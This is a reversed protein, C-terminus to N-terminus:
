DNLFSEGWLVEVKGNATLKVKFEAVPSTIVKTPDIIETDNEKSASVSLKPLPTRQAFDTAAKNTPEYSAVKGEKNVLVRYVLDDKIPTSVQGDQTSSSQWNKALIQQFQDQLKEIVKKDTIAPVPVAIASSLSSPIESPIEAERKLPAPAKLDNKAVDLTADLLQKVQVSDRQTFLRHPYVLRQYERSTKGEIVDIAHKTTRYGADTPSEDIISQLPQTPDLLMNALQRTLPVTGFVQVKKELGLEKVAQIALTTTVESGGWLVNINQHSELMQKVKDVEQPTQANTSAVQNWTVNSDSIGALFGQYYPYVRSSDAGDVFGVNLPQGPLNTKAWASMYKGVDSGMQFSDSEYCAFVVKQAVEPLCDGVTVVVAGSAYAEVIAPVSKEADLPRLLIVDVDLARLQKIGQAEEEIKDGTAIPFFEIRKNEKVANEIGQQYLKYSSAENPILYGVKYKDESPKAIKEEWDEDKIAKEWDYARKVQDVSSFKARKLNARDLEAAITITGKRLDAYRLSAGKLNAKYLNAKQFNARSLNSDQLNALSLDAGQLDAWLLWAGILSAEKLNTDRLYCRAMRTEDLNAKELDAGELNAYRLIAGKLNANKLNAGKLNVRELNAGELNAGELNAGELNAGKFNAGALNMQSLDVGEYRYFQPPWQAFTALGFQFHYCNNLKIGEFNANPAQEGLLSECFKNLMEIGEIRSQSYEVEKPNRIEQRAETLAQQQRQPAELFYAGMAALLTFQGIVTALSYLSVNECWKVFDGLRQDLFRFPNLWPYKNPLPVSNKELYYTEFMRRYSEAPIDLRKAEKMLAYERRVADNIEAVESFSADLSMLISEVESIEPEEAPLSAGNESKQEPLSVAKPEKGELARDTDM